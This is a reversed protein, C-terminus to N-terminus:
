WAKKPQSEVLTLVRYLDKKILVADDSVYIKAVWDLVEDFWAYLMPYKKTLFKWQGFRM